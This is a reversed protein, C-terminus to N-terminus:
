HSRHRAAKGPPSRRHPELRQADAHRQDIWDRVLPDRGRKEPISQRNLASVARFAGKEMDRLTQELRSLDDAHPRRCHGIRNRISRLEVTRGAWVAREILSGEFYQWNADIIEFLAAADAYALQAQGDPTAMYDFADDKSRRKESHAPLQAAWGKGYAARLEVYVLSRLWTELQWWRGYLATATPPMGYDWPVSISHRIEEPLSPWDM